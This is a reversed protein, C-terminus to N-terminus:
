RARLKRKSQKAQCSKKQKKGVEMVKRFTALKLIKLVSAIHHSIHGPNEDQTYKKHQEKKGVETLKGIYVFVFVFFWSESFASVV